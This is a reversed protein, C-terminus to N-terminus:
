WEALEKNMTIVIIEFIYNIVLNLFTIWYIKVNDLRVNWCKYIPFSNRHWYDSFVLMLVKTQLLPELFKSSWKLM